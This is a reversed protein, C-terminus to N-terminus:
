GLYDERGINDRSKVVRDNIPGLPNCASDGFSTDVILLTKKKEREGAMVKRGSPTIMPNRFKTHPKLDFILYSKPNFLIPPVGRAGRTTSKNYKKLGKFGWFHRFFEDSFKEIKNARGSLVELLTL